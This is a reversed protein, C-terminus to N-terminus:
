KTVFFFGRVQLFYIILIFGEFNAVNQLFFLQFKWKYIILEQLMDVCLLTEIFKKSKEKVHLWIQNLDKKQFIVLLIGIVVYVFISM